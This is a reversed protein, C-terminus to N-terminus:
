SSASVSGTAPSGANKRTVSGGQKESLLIHFLETWDAAFPAPISPASTESFALGGQIFSKIAEALIQPNGPPFFSVAAYTGVTEHAYPLDIVLMPKGTQQFESIPMGWTELKSPFLLCDAKAYLMLIRDRPMIGLWSVSRLGGYESRLKAAYRNESGDITLWLNFGDVGDQELIRAAQLLLEVNKFSRPYTPYFFRPTQKQPQNEEHLVPIVLSPIRPHAVVINQVGYRRRFETRLWQQQVIVLDNRRLNIAYLYRYFFTFLSFKWDTLAERVGLRYFPSPNHCYVARVEATVNPTMDHMSLWLYPRLRRSLARLSWYEFYLRRLWSSKVDPFEIYTVRDIDFLSQRHVLAVIEYRSAYNDALEQLADKFVSLPGGEVFNVGSLVIGPKVRAGRGHTPMIARSGLPGLRDSKARLPVLPQVSIFFLSIVRYFGPLM